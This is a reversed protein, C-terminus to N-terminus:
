GLGLECADEVQDLAPGAAGIGQRAGGTHIRARERRGQDPELQVPVHARVRGAAILARRQGRGRGGLWRELRDATAASRVVVTAIVIAVESEPPPAPIWASRLANARHPTWPVEAITASVACFVWSTTETSVRGPRNM